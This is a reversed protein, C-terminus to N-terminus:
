KGCMPCRNEAEAALQEPKPTPFAQASSVLLNHKRVNAWMGAPLAGGPIVTFGMNQAMSNSAPAGPALAVANEGFRKAIVAKVAQPKTRADSAAEQVWPATSTEEDLATYMENLVAVNVARLFSAPVSDREFNLPVKQLVNVRFGNDTECIPIGLEHIWGKDGVLCDHIEVAAKRVTKRFTGGEDAIETPLTAQMKIRPELMPVDEGNFTTRVPPLLNRMQSAVDDYQERTMRIKATFQTGQQRGGRGLRRTGDAAFIVSGKTTTIVAESCCAVVLKEGLNFRGRKTPDAARNSKAFMTFANDLDAFGEGFDEVILHAQAVGPIPDLSVHVIQTGSDWANQILEFIAASKGRRELIAALGTKDIEFWTM